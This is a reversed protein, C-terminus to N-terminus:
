RDYVWRRSSDNWTQGAAVKLDYIGGGFAYAVTEPICNLTQLLENNLRVELWGYHRTKADYDGNEDLDHEEPLLREFGGILTYSYQGNSFTVSEGTSRTVGSWPEFRLGEITESLNIEAPSSIPGYSYTARDQDFCVFVETNRGEIQCSSFVQQDQACDAKIETAFVVSLVIVWSKVSGVMM